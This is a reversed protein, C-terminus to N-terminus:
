HSAISSCAALDSLLMALLLAGVEDGLNAAHRELAVILRVISSQSLTVELFSRRRLATCVKDVLINGCLPGM